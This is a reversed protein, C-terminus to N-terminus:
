NTIMGTVLKPAPKKINLFIMISLDINKTSADGPDLLSLEPDKFDLLLFAQSDVNILIDKENIEKLLTDPENHPTKNYDYYEYNLGKQHLFEKIKSDYVLFLRKKTPTLNKAIDKQSLEIGHNRVIAQLVSCACYNDEEQPILDYQKM